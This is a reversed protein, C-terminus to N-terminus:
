IWRQDSGNVRREARKRAGDVIKLAGCQDQALFRAGCVLAEAPWLVQPTDGILKGLARARAGNRVM